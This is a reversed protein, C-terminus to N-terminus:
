SQIIALLYSQRSIWLTLDGFVSVSTDLQEGLSIDYLLDWDQNMLLLRALGTALLLVEGDPSAAISRLGGALAGVEQIEQGSDRVEVVQSGRM